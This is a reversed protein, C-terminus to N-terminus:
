IMAEKSSLYFAASLALTVLWASQSSVMVERLEWIASVVWVMLLKSFVM